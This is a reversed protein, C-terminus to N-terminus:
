KATEDYGPLSAPPSSTADDLTRQDKLQIGTVCRRRAESLL